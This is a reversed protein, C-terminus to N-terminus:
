IGVTPEKKIASVNKWKYVLLSGDCTHDSCNNEAGTRGGQCVVNKKLDKLLVETNKQAWM